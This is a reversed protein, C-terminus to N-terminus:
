TVLLYPLLILSFLLRFWVRFDKKPLLVTYVTDYVIRTTQRTDISDRNKRRCYFTGEVIVAHLKDCM